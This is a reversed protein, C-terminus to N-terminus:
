QEFLIDRTRTQLLVTVQDKMWALGFILQYVPFVKIDTVSGGFIHLVPVASAKMMIRFRVLVVRM